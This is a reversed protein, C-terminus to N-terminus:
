ALTEDDEAEGFIDILRAEFGEHWTGAEKSIAQLTLDWDYETAIKMM